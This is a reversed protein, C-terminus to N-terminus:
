YRIPLLSEEKRAIDEDGFFAEALLIVFDNASETYVTERAFIPDSAYINEAGYEAMKRITNADKAGWVHIEYGMRHILDVQRASLFVANLSYFDVNELMTYSGLPMAIILGTRIEPSVAKVQSLADYNFSTVVCQDIFDKEIILEATRRPLDPSNASAKIEINLRIHGSAAEIIEELLPVREGAFEESFFSGVDINQLEELNTDWVMAESGGTRKLSAAHIVVVYGDRSLRVDIEAYDAGEEIAKLISALTNEPARTSSGRHATIEPTRAFILRRVVGNSLSQVMIGANAGFIMLLIMGLIIRHSKLPRVILQSEAKGEIHNKATMRHFYNSVVVFFFPTFFSYLIFSTVNGTVRSFTLFSVLKIESPVFVSIVAAGITLIGAYLVFLFLFVMMYWALFRVNIGITRKHILKRASRFADRFKMGRIVVFHIVFIYSWLFWLAVLSVGVLIWQLIHNDQYTRHLYDPIGTVSILSSAFPFDLFTVAARLVFLFLLGLPHFFGRMKKLGAFAIEIANVKRDIRSMEFCITLVTLEYLSFLTVIVLLSLGIALSIPDSLFAKLNKDTLFVISSRDIASDLGWLLLPYLVLSSLLKYLLEFWVLASLNKRILTINQWYFGKM